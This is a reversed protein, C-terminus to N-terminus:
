LAFDATLASELIYERDGFGRREKGSDVMTGLGTPSYFAPIGAAGARLRECLIGQPVLELEIEGSQIQEDVATPWGAYAGFSAVLRRIQKKEALISPSWPGAGTTNCIVTLDKVGKDNLASLLSAASAQPVGIGSVIISAGDNIDWIAESPTSFVKSM